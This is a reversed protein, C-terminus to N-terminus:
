EMKVCRVQMGNARRSARNADFHNILRSTVLDFYMCVSRGDDTPTSSWYYGEWPLSPALMDDEKFNVNQVKGDTYRRYGAGIYFYSGVGDTLFWGYRERLADLDTADEAESLKLVGLLELGHKEIEPCGPASGASHNSGDKLLNCLFIVALNGYALYINIIFALKCSLESNCAYGCYNETTLPSCFLM